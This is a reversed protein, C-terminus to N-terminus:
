PKVQCHLGAGQLTGCLANAAGADSALAQLRYVTGIDAKGEVIRHGHGSLASYQSSLKSWATEAAAHSSFAGVQVGVGGQSGSGAAASKVASKAEPPKAEATNAAATNAAAPGAAGSKADAAAKADAAKAGATMAGATMAGASGDPHKGESVKYSSDGTGEFTKGGPNAPEVKYPAKSAEILSGDAQASPTQSHSVWYIGGILAGLTLLGLMVFGAMRGSDQPEHDVDDASDLWPLREDEGLALRDHNEPDHAASGFAAAHDEPAAQAADDWPEHGKEDGGHGTQDIM